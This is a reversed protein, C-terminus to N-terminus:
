FGFAEPLGLSLVPIYTILALIGIMVALFPLAGKVVQELPINGVKAAVFLNVGVPPTVMGIALNAIM